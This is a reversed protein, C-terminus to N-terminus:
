TGRRTQTSGASEAADFSRARGLPVFLTSPRAADHHLSVTVARAQEATEESVIGGANYNKQVYTDDLLRGIPALVLRLRHGRKVQRSVFTFRNFDYRLPATTRVLTGSRLDERYRARMADNSLRVSTGDATIEYVSAYFDADPCDISIWASLRFFGSIEVDREFPASHYVLARGGLALLVSQDVLSSGLVQAEASVEPGAADGPDYRYTDPPGTGHCPGLSGSCYVDDANSCSDLFYVDYRETVEELTNAYRWCEAGMVYYAVAKQLFAPKPADQMAWAYWAVHLARLDLLAAPGCTLGGFERVPERTGAHDWPGIILYHRSRATAGGNRCHERYHEIAGSQDDDYSGTITLIPVNIRAYQSANPNYADWYEDREPHSLWEQFIESRLGAFTDLERFSRGSEHWRRYTNSWFSEDGFLKSQATRGSTYSLWRIAYPAFVNSRMPSGVGPFPAAAPAIAALHPPFEKAAAWQSYGGYSGGWMAVQGNCYPQSALWEVVDHGDRAEQIFPQFVGESNGRGRVDVVVFPFGEKAFYVGYDHYTDAVYPTLTVVCAQPGTRGKPAYLTGHLHVGDRLQINLGWRIEVAGIDKAPMGRSRDAMCAQM